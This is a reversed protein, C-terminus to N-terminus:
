SHTAPGRSPGKRLRELMTQRDQRAPVAAKQAPDRRMLERFLEGGPFEELARWGTRTLSWVGHGDAHTVWGVRKGASLNFGFRMGWASMQDRVRAIRQEDPTPSARDEM